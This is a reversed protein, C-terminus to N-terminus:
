SVGALIVVHVAECAGIDALLQALGPSAQTVDVARAAAAQREATRLTALSASVGGPATAPPIPTASETQTGQVYERKLVTLHESHHDHLPRLDQALRPHAALVSAYLAVLQQENAMVATLLGVQPGPKPPPAHQVPTCGSAMTAPVILAAASGGLMARRSFLGRSRRAEL